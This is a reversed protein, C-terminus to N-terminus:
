CNFCMGKKSFKESFAATNPGLYVLCSGHPNMSTKAGSPTRFRLRKYLFCVPLSYCKKFWRYGVSAKILALGEMIDGKNYHDILKKLFTNQVSKSGVSGFPPNLYCTRARWRKSLADENKTYFKKAKIIKNAQETSSPDLDVGGLFEGIMKSLKKPTYWEDSESTLFVRRRTAGWKGPDPLREEKDVTGRQETRGLCELVAAISTSTPTGQLCALRWVKRKDEDSLNGLARVKCVNSLM